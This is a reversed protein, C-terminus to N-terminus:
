HLEAFKAWRQLVFVAMEKSHFQSIVPPLPLCVGPWVGQWDGRTQRGWFTPREAFVKLKAKQRRHSDKLMYDYEQRYHDTTSSSSQRQCQERDHWPSSVSLETIKARMVDCRESFAFVTGYAIYFFPFWL